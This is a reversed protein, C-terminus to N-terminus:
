CVLFIGFCTFCYAHSGWTLASCVCVCVCFPDWNSFPNEMCPLASREFCICFCPSIVSIYLFDPHFCSPNMNSPLEQSLCSGVSVPLMSTAAQPAHTSNEKLIHPSHPLTDLHVFLFIVLCHAGSLCTTVILLTTIKKSFLSLYIYFM